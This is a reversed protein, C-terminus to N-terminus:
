FPLQELSAVWQTWRVKGTDVRMSMEYLTAKM